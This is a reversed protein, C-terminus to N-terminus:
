VFGLRGEFLKGGNESRMECKWMRWVFRLLVKWVKVYWDLTSVMHGVYMKKGDGEDGAERRNLLKLCQGDMEPSRVVVMMNRVLRAVFGECVELVEEEGSGGSGGGGGGEL